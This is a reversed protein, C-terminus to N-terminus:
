GSGAGRDSRVLGRGSARGGALAVAGVDECPSWIRSLGSRALVTAYETAPTRFLEWRTLTSFSLRLTRSRRRMAARSSTRYMTWRSACGSNRRSRASWRKIVGASGYRDRHWGAVVGVLVVIGTALMLPWYGRGPFYDPLLRLLIAAGTIISAGKLILTNM